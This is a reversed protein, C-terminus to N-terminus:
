GVDRRPMRPDMRTQPDRRQCWRSSLALIDGAQLAKTNRMLPIRTGAPKFMEMNAQEPKHESRVCFFPEVVAKGWDGDATPPQLCGQLHMALGHEKEVDVHFVGHYEKDKQTEEIRTTMPVLVLKHKAFAKRTVVNRPRFTIKLGEHVNQYKSELELLKKMIDGKAVCLQSAKTGSVLNQSYDLIEQVETPKEKVLKWTGALLSKTPLEFRSGEEAEIVVHDGETMEQIIFRLKDSKRIIVVGVSFGLEHAMRTNSIQGKDFNDYGQCGLKPQMIIITGTRM